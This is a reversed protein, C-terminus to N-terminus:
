RKSFLRKRWDKFTLRRLTKPISNMCELYDSYPHKFRWPKGMKGAYHLMICKAKEEELEEKTYANKLFEYVEQMYHESHVGSFVTKGDQIVKITKCEIQGFRASCGSLCVVLLSTLLTKKM